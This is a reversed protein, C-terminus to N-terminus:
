LREPLNYRQKDIKLVWHPKGSDGFWLPAYDDSSGKTRWVEDIMEHYSYVKCKVDLSMLDAITLHKYHFNNLLNNLAYDLRKASFGAKAIQETLINFFSPSMDPFVASLKAITTTIQEFSAPASILVSIESSGNKLLEHEASVRQLPSCLSNVAQPLTNKLQEM